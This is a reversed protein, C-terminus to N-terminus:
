EWSMFGISIANALILGQDSLRGGSCVVLEPLSDSGDAIEELLFFAVVEEFSRSIFGVSRL